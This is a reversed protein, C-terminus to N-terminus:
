SGSVDADADAAPEAPQGQGGAGLETLAAASIM